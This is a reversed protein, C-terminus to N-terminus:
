NINPTKKSSYSFLCEMFRIVKREVIIERTPMQRKIMRIEPSSQSEHKEVGTIAILNKMQPKTIKIPLM